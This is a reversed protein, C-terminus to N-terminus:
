SPSSPTTRFSAAGSCTASTRTPHSRASSARFSGWAAPALHGSGLLDSTDGTPFRIDALVAFGTRESQSLNVKVRAAIDGIGTASGEVFRSATLEPNDPTGAFFHAATPGGFPAVQAESRGRLSTSVVPLAVGVDIRDSLGYTLLFYTIRVDVNLDLRFGIVENELGPIGVLTCDGGFITDCGPFDANVHGFNLQIDELSVGRLSKFHLVNVGAGVFVRGRGLTQAREAFAPGASVSTEVPVGGVFRFTGGGATAGLPVNAANSVIANTIFSILAANGAAAAPVFHDAHAQIAAPNNPDATGALFLQDTGTGFAFLESLKDRLAQGQLPSAVTVLLALCPIWHRM